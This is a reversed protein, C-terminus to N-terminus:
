ITHPPGRAFPANVYGYSAVSRSALPQWPIPDTAPSELAPASLAAPSHQALHCVACSGADDVHEVAHAWTAGSALLFIALALWAFLSRTRRSPGM